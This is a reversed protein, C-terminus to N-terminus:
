AHARQLIGSWRVIVSAIYLTWGDGSNICDAGDEHNQKLCSMIEFALQSKRLQNGHARTLFGHEAASLVDPKCEAQGVHWEAGM